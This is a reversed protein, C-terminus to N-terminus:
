FFSQFCPDDVPHSFTMVFKMGDPYRYTVTYSCWHEDCDPGACSVLDIDEPSIGEDSALVERWKQIVDGLSLCEKEQTPLHVFQCSSILVLVSVALIIIVHKM